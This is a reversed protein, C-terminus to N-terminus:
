ILLNLQSFGICHGILFHQSSNGVAKASNDVTKALNGVAKASNGVAKATPNFISM